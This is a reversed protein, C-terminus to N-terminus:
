NLLVEVWIVTFMLMKFIIRLNEFFYNQLPAEEGYLAPSYDFM